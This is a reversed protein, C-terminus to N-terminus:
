EDTELAHHNKENFLPIAPAKFKILQYVRKIDKTNMKFIKKGKKILVFEKTM